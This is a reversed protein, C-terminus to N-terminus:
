GEPVLAHTEVSLLEGGKLGFTIQDGHIVEGGPVLEAETPVVFLSRLGTSDLIQGLSMFAEFQEPRYPVAEIEDEIVSLPQEGAAQGDLFSLAVGESYYSWVEHRVPVVANNEDLEEYFLISFAQPSGHQAVAAQQDASLTYVDGAPDSPNRVSAEFPMQRYAFRGLYLLILGAALCAALVIMALGAPRACGPGTRAPLPAGCSACARSTAAVPSGCRPCKMINEGQSVRHM